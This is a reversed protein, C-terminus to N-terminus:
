DNVDPDMVGLGCTSGALERAVTVRQDQIM